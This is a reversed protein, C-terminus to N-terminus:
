RLITPLLENKKNNFVGLEVVSVSFSFECLTDYGDGTATANTVSCCHTNPSIPHRDCVLESMGYQMMAHRQESKDAGGAGGVKRLITSVRRGLVLCLHKSRREQNVVFVGGFHKVDLFDRLLESNAEPRCFYTEFAERQFGLSL